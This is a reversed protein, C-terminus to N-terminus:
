LLKGWHLSLNQPCDRVYLQYYLYMSGLILSCLIVVFSINVGALALGRTGMIIFLVVVLIGILEKKVRVNKGGLM